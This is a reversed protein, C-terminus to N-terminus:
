NMQSPNLLTDRGRSFIFRPDKRKKTTGIADRTIVIVRSFLYGSTLYIGRDAAMFLLYLLEIFANCAVLFLSVM